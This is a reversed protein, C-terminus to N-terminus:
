GICVANDDAMRRDVRDLDDFAIVTTSVGSRERNQATCVGCIKRRARQAVRIDAAVALLIPRCRHRTVRLACRRSPRDRKLARPIVDLHGDGLIESSTSAASFNRSLRSGYRHTDPEPVVHVSEGFSAPQDEATDLHLM